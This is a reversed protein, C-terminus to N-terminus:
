KLESSLLNKKLLFQRVLAYRTVNNNGVLNLEGGNHLADKQNGYELICNNSWMLRRNTWPTSVVIRTIRTFSLWNSILIDDSFKCSDHSLCVKLYSGWSKNPFFSRHYCVSGFGELIHTAGNEYQAGIMNNKHWIFGSLGYANKISGKIKKFCMSYVEITDKLYLIDDDITIIWTDDDQDIMNLAGQLKTIPGLDECNTNWIVIDKYKDKFILAPDPYPENTRKFIPPINVYIKSPTVSQNMISDLTSGILPLRKPSTTLSVVINM